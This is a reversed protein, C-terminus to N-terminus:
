DKSLTARFLSGVGQRQGTRVTGNADFELAEERFSLEATRGDAIALMAGALNERASARLGVYSTTLRPNIEIVVDDKGTEDPGLVLDVGLYGLPNTLTAVAREALLTAREALSHELPLSGGLYTFRADGSLRQRCPALAFRGTPGCLFAVSASLGPQFQELRMTENPPSKESRWHEIRRLGCSGVGGVPKAVAPYRFNTPWPQGSEILRGEPVPIGHRALHEATAQKHGALRVIEISPGLLRGGATEVLQCKKLLQGGTEPAIVVSWDGEAAYRQFAEEEAAATNVDITRCSPLEFGILRGDRLATVEIAPLAALDAALARIMASGEALLSSPFGDGGVTLLGGGTIFEYLFIRM